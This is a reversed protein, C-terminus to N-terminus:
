RILNPSFEAITQEPWSYGWITLVELSKWGQFLEDQKGLAGQLISSLVTPSIWDVKLCSNM